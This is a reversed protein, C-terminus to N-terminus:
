RPSRREQIPAVALGRARLWEELERRRAHADWVALLEVTAVCTLVVALLVTVFGPITPM